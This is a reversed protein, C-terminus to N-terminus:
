LEDLPFFEDEARIRNLYEEQKRWGAEEALRRIVDDFSEKKNGLEALLDRTQKSVAITTKQSM